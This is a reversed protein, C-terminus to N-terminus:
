VAGDQVAHGQVVVKLEPQPPWYAHFIVSIAKGKRLGDIASGRIGADYEAHNEACAYASADDYIPLEMHSAVPDGAFPTM